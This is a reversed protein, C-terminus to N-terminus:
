WVILYFELMMLKFVKVSGFVVIMGFDNWLLDVIMVNEVCNKFDNKLWDYVELDM